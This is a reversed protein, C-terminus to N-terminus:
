TVSISLHHCWDSIHVLKDGSSTGRLASPVVGGTIFATARTGGEWPDHKHGRLPYNNGLAGIGGNDQSSACPSAGCVCLCPTLTLIVISRGRSSLRSVHCIVSRCTDRSFFPSPTASVASFVLLTNAWYGTAKLTASVNGLGSDLMDLM